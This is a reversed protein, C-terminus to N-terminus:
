YRGELYREAKYAKKKLHQAYIEAYKIFHDLRTMTETFLQEFQGYKEDHWSSKLNSLSTKADARANSLEGATIELFAAFRKVEQPDVVAQPM